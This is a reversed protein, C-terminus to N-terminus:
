LTTEMLAADQLHKEIASLTLAHAQRLRVLDAENVSSGVRLCDEIEGALAAVALAGVQAAMSKLTHMSRLATKATAASPLETLAQAYQALSDLSGQRFLALMQVSFGPDSGDLVMPLEALVKPDFFAASPLVHHVSAPGQAPGDMSGSELQCHSLHRQMMEALRVGSIPKALYDSMGAAVCADRDGAMANATLAIIPLAVRETHLQEWARIHRTAEFGDMVPMQCDMLVLDFVETCILTIAEAGNNAVTVTLGLRALLAKAVGQNILNDEVLLVSANFAAIATRPAAATQLAESPARGLVSTVVRFLDARRLPKNVYRSIGLDARALQDTRAYTSSLMVLKTRETGPLNLMESALQVGDMGPMNMDLVALAFPTQNNTAACLLELAAPGSDACSVNMGWGQLQLHLIERNTQNDDVVLVHVGLLSSADVPAPANLAKPLTLDIIFKAGEGLASEVRIAGGMLGLLRTCIALGLGTGGHERTTSGDAQSFHDFIKKQAHPAIGLGTDQVCVSLTLDTESEGLLTVRVVVEGSPTFKVANSILNAIVQRLRFPDGRLALPAHSPVFQAALELGKAEAPQLFMTLAEEVVDVLSFDVAELELQGSEIKSFDLIDNIVGLLHRGSAQVAEAWVRQQPQLDSDILLENMGLVGNMPTRIEHSMTALFESKAQSAAEAAEKAKAMSQQAARQETIDILTGVLGIVRGDAGMLTVKSVLADIMRNGTRQNHMEYNRVGPTEILARDEANHRAAAESSLLQSASKGLVDAANLSFLDSYARNLRVYRGEVDKLVVPVPLAEFLADVLALSEKLTETNLLRETCDRAVGEYGLFVGNSDFRPRGDAEIWCQEGSVTDGRFSVGKFHERQDMRGHFAQWGGAPADLWDVGDDSHKHDPNDNHATFSRNSQVMRLFEADTLADFQHTADTQWFWDGSMEARAQWRQAALRKETVDIHTGSMWEARGDASYTSVRARAQLWLWRGDRHLVRAEHQYFLTKGQLHERMGLNVADLDDPHILKLWTQMRPALTKIDYGLLEAWSQSMRLEGTQVNWEGTAANTGELIHTLRLQEQALLSATAKMDTIDSEVAMFGLLTGDTARMPQIDIDIWYEAGSKHRNLLECRVPEGADLAARLSAIVDGDTAGTQLLEGPSRGIAEEASYGSIRVFGDNVWTIRRQADTVIVANSTHKAVLALRGLEDTLERARQEVRSRGMVLLAALLTALATTVIGAVAAMNARSRNVSAHFSPNSVTRVTWARQGVTLSTKSEFANAKAAGRSGDLILDSAYLRKEPQNAPGDYIEVSVSGQAVNVLGQFLETAVIPAYLVGRLAGWRDEENEVAAGTRYLPLFVLLGLSHSESSPILILPTVTPQGSLVADEIAIRTAVSDGLDSGWATLNPRLPEIHRVVFLDATNTQTKVQFESSGEARAAAGYSGVEGRKVYEILGFGKVGPFEKTLDRSAVYAQFQATNLHNQSAAYTGRLGNMGYGPLSMRRQIEIEIRQALRNFESRADEDIQRNFTATIWSTIAMGVLLVTLPWFWTRRSGVSPYRVSSLREPTSVAHALGTSNIEPPPTFPTQVARHTFNCSRGIRENCPTTKPRNSCFNFRRGSRM